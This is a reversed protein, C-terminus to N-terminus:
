GYAEFLIYLSILILARSNALSALVETRFLGYTRQPTPQKRSYYVALLALAMVGVDTLILALSGTFFVSIIQEGSIKLRKIRDSSLSEVARM